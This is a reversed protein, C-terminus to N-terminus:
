PEEVKKEELRLFTSRTIFRCLGLVSERREFYLM